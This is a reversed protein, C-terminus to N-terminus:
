KLFIKNNFDVMIRDKIASFVKSLPIRRNHKVFHIFEQLNEDSCYRPNGLLPVVKETLIEEFNQFHQSLIWKIVGCIFFFGVSFTVKILDLHPIIFDANTTSTKLLLDLLEKINSTDAAQCNLAESLVSSHTFPDCFGM